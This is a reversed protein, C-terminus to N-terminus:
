SFAYYAKAKQNSQQSSLGTLPPQHANTSFLILISNTMLKMHLGVMLYSAIM